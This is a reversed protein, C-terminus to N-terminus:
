IKGEPQDGGGEATCAELWGKMEKVSSTFDHTRTVFTHDEKFFYILLVNSLFCDWSLDCRVHSM